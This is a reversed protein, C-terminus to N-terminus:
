DRPKKTDIMDVIKESFRKYAIGFLDRSDYVRALEMIENQVDELVNIVAANTVDFTNEM